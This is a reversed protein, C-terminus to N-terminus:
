AYRGGTAADEVGAISGPLFNIGAGGTNIVGNMQALFKRGAPSGAITLVPSAVRMDGANNSIVGAATFSTGAAFQLSLPTSGAADQYGLQMTAHDAAFLYAGSGSVNVVGKVNVFGGAYGAITGVGAMTSLEVAVGDVTVAGGSGAAAEYAARIKGGVVEVVAGSYAVVGRGSNVGLSTADIVAGAAM